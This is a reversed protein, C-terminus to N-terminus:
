VVGSIWMIYKLKTDTSYKSKTFIQILTM